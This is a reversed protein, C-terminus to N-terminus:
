ASVMSSQRRWLDVRHGNRELAAANAFVDSHRYDAPRDFAGPATAGPATAGPRTSSPTSTPRTSRSAYRAVLPRIDESALLRALDDMETM